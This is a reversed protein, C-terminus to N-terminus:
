MDRIYFAIQYPLREEPTSLETGLLKKINNMRYIITNRHTFMSQAMAQISGDLELYRRLTEVYNSNHRRDHEELVSLAEQKMQALLGTDTCSYLLRYMGMEEFKLFATKTRMAMNAAAEARRYSVSLNEIDTVPSGIGVYLPRGPMRKHARKLMGEGLEILLEPKIANVVLVFFSNYYFFSGNHTIQELYMQLRYSLKRRDVTDMSDLGESAILMVQFTGDVDFYPLLKKRYEQNDPQEVASILANVVQEDTSGQVFIRISFDKMMDALHVEWPVTLLPLHNDECYALLSEPLEEIYNGTNVVLGAAHRQVLHRALEMMAEETPFGLGTTVVLEKGWFNQIIKTDEILHVWSISNSWGDKGALYRMRYREESTIMMDQITFGM